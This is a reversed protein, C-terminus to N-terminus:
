EGCLLMTCYFRAMIVARTDHYEVEARRAVDVEPVHFGICRAFNAARELRDAGLRGIDVDGFDQRHVGLHRVLKRKYAGHMVAARCHVISTPLDHLSAPAEGATHLRRVGSGDGTVQESALAVQRWKDHQRFQHPAAAAVHGVALRSTEEALGVIRERQVGIWRFLIELYRIQQRRILDARCSEIAAALHAIDDVARHFIKFGALVRSQQVFAEVGREAHHGAFLGPGREVDGLLFM